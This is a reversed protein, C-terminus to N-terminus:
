NNDSLSTMLTFLKPGTSARAAFIGLSVLVIILLYEVLGGGNKDFLFLNFFKM